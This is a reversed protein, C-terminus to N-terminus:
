LISECIATLSGEDLRGLEGSESDCGWLSRLHECWAPMPKPVKSKAWVWVSPDGCRADADDKSASKVRSCDSCSLADLTSADDALWAVVIPGWSGSPM